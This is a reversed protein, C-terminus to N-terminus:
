LMIIQRDTAPLLLSDVPRLVRMKRYYGDIFTTLVVCIKVIAMSYKRLIYLGQCQNRYLVRVARQLIAIKFSISINKNVRIVIGATIGPM